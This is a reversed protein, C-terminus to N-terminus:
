LVVLAIFLSVAVFALVWSALVIVAGIKERPLLDVWGSHLGM